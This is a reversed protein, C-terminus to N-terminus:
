PVPTPTASSKIEVPQVGKPPEIGYPLKVPIPISYQDLLFQLTVAETQVRSDDNASRLALTLRAHTNLLYNLTVADQPSVVLTISQPMEAAAAAAKQADAQAKTTTTEGSQDKVESAGPQPTPTASSAQAPTHSFEGVHLVVADQLLTQAVQRPRQQESPVAYLSQGLVSDLVTKGVSPQSVTSDSYHATIANPGTEPKIPGPAVLIASNNPLKTQFDPDLDVFMMSVIVNVHDGAEPAYSVSSLSDIPISVAVMGRPIALAANSGTASLQDASQVLMGNTLTMGADLDFKAQRGIVENQNTFMGQILLSRQIPVQGLVKDSILGGRPVRQTVVVVNVTDVVPAQTSATNPSTTPAPQLFKQGLVVVAVVGLILIFALYFFIRGRRM